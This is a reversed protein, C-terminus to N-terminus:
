PVQFPKLGRFTFSTIADPFVRLDMYGLGLLQSDSVGAAAVRVPGPKVNMAAYLGLTSTAKASLDPLPNDENDTFYTLASRPKDIDVVANVLRVDGCDHVEGAIAGYGPTISQGIAVQAIVGYDDTALARVDKDYVGGTLESERIFLGYEYIPAWKPGQTVILLETETPVDPYTYRCEFRPDCDDVEEEVGDIACDSATTVADGVLQDPEGDDAGGTRKVTYVKIELDSSQCGHSFIKAVGSLSATASMTPPDPFSGDTLCGVDTDGTGGYEKVNDSRRLVLTSGATKPHRLAVGCADFEAGPPLNGCDVDMPAAACLASNSPACLADCAPSSTHAIAAPDLDCRDSGSTGGGPSSCAAGTLTAALCAALAIGRAHRLSSLLLSM